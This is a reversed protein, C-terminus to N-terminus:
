RVSQRISMTRGHAVARVAALLTEPDADERVQGAAGARLAGVLRADDTSATLAIVACRRRAHWSAGRTEIGSTRHPLLLEQLVIHPQWSDLQELLHDDIPAIAIGPM